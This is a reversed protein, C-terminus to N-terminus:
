FNIQWKAGIYWLDDDLSFEEDEDFDFPRNADFDLVGVEPVIFFGPAINVVCNLYYSLVSNDFETTGDVESERYGIGGEFALMDTAKVTVVALGGYAENDKVEGNRYGPNLDIQSYVGYLGGNVLYHAALKLSTIGFDFGFGLEAVYADWSESVPEDTEVTQFGGDFEVFMMDSDWKYGLEIKPLTTDVDLGAVPLEIDVKEDGFSITDAPTPEVLAIKFGMSSWQIMPRRSTYLQGSGLLDEDGAWVQNSYFQNATPSYTQGILLTGGGGFQYIGFLKRTSVNGTEGGTGDNVAFEFGGGINDKKVVAGFRSNGQLDWTLDEDKAVGDDEWFTSFRASGYFGWHLPGKEILDLAAAIREEMPKEEQAAAPLTFACVLALATLFILFKKM